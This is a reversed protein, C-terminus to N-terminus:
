ERRCIVTYTGSAPSTAKSVWTFVGLWPRDKMTQGVLSSMQERATPPLCALAGGCYIFLGSLVPTGDMQDMARRPVSAFHNLLLNWNGENLFVEDGESVSSGTSLSGPFKPDESPWARIFQNHGGKYRSIPYFGCFAAADEGQALAEHVRGGLWEDYVDAAPKGDIELILRPQCKTVIGSMTTRRYGGGYSWGFPENCYLLAVGVGNQIVRDGAIISWNSMKKRSLADVSGAATGGILPIGPGAEEGLGALVEEENPLTVCLLIM